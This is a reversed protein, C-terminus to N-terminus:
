PKLKEAVLEKFKDSAEFKPTYKDETKYKKGTVNNIGERGQQFRPFFRGFRTISVKDGAAVHEQILEFTAQILEQVKTVGIEKFREDREVLEKALQTVTIAKRESMSIEKEKFKKEVITVNDSVDSDSTREKIIEVSMKILDDILNM